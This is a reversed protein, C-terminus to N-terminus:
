TWLGHGQAEVICQGPLDLLESRQFAIGDAHVGAPRCHVVVNVDAIQTGESKLVDQPAPQAVAAVAELMHHVDSVHVVLDDAIGQRLAHGDGLVRRFVFLCEQFVGGPQTQLPGLFEDPGGLVDGVHHFGDLLQFLFSESIRIFAGGVVADGAKGTVPFKGPHVDPALPGARADVDVLVVLFADAIEDQPFGPFVAFREPFARQPRAPRAPVDLARHHRHLVQSLRDVDM